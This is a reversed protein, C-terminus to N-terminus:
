ENGYFIYQLLKDTALNPEMTPTDNVTKTAEIVASLLKGIREQVLQKQRLTWEGSFKQSTYSGRKITTKVEKTIPRYSSPIHEKDLNPDLLIETDTITTFSDGELRPTEFVDARGEYDENASAKWIESDSRVPINQVVQKLNEDTLINKLRLLETASLSGLKLGDVVFPVRTSGAANTAEIAFQDKLYPLLAKNVLRKIEESVTTAVVTHGMKTPDELQGEAAHFTKKEGRFSSSNRKFFEGQKRLSETYIAREHEAKALTVNMKEQVMIDMYKTKTAPAPNSGAHLADGRRKMHM